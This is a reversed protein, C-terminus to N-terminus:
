RRGENGKALPLGLRVLEHAFSLDEIPLSTTSSPRGHPIALADATSFDQDGTAPGPPLLHSEVQPPEEERGAEDERKERDRSHLRARWHNPVVHSERIPRRWDRGKLNTRPM